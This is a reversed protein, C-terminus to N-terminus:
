DFSPRERPHCRAVVQALDSIEVRTYIGTTDLSEHGLLTQLHRLGAGRRLMHTACSHRLVHPTVVKDLGIEKAYLRVISALYQRTLLRGQETLFVAKQNPDRVLQPRGHQLYEGLWIEAEEGLPVVRSKGGKGLEIHLTKRDFDVHELCLHRLESNRIGTGYFVEMAARDRLGKPKAVNPAQLLRVTERESLIVRPLAKVRKPSELNHTVDLLLYNERYLYRAFAKVACFRLMQTSRSLPKDQPRLYFLHTRYEELRERTLGSLSSVKDELFAFFPKLERTYVDVTAASWQRVVQLYERFRAQWLRLDVPVVGEPCYSIRM